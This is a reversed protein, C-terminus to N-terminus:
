AGISTGYRLYENTTKKEQPLDNEHFIQKLLIINFPALEAIPIIHIHQLVESIYESEKSYIIDINKQKFINRFYPGWIRCENPRDNITDLSYNLYAFDYISLLTHTPGFFLCDSFHFARHTNQFGRVYLSSIIIKEKEKGLKILLDLNSYHHDIRCFLVFPTKVTKIAKQFSCIHFFCKHFENRQNEQPINRQHLENRFEDEDNIVYDVNSFKNVIPLAEEIQYTYLVVLVPAITSYIELQKELTVTNNLIGQLIITTDTNM